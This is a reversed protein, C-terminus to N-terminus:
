ALLGLVSLLIGGFISIFLLWGTKVNKKLLWYMLGTLLLPLMGPMINDLIEQLVFMDGYAIPTTIDIMSGVMSGVVILGVMTSIYMVKEMLGEKQIKVLYKSGATYGLKGGYYTVLFSPIFSLVMALIPGLINGQKALNIGIGFAIVRVTGQFFSDGIGSLPGMLSTKIANISEPKFNERDNAYKEEMAASLGMVFATTQPTCNFFAMHRKYAEKRFEIDKPDKYIEDIIPAMGYMFGMNMQREYNWSAQMAWSKWFFNRYKKRNLDTKKKENAM